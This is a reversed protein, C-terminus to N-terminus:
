SECQFYSRPSKGMVKKFVRSFHEVNNYGCKFALEYLKYNYSSMLEISAAIRTRNLFETFVMGEEKSFVTSMYSANVGMAESLSSLTLDTEYNTLIYKKARKVLTMNNFENQICLSVIEKLWQNYENYTGYKNLYVTYYSLKDFILPNIGTTELYEELYIHYKSFCDRVLALPENATILFQTINDQLGEIKRSQLCSRFLRQKDTYESTDNFSSCVLDYALLEEKGLYFFRELALSAQKYMESLTRKGKSKISNMGGIINMCMYVNMNQKITHFINRISSVANIHPAKNMVIIYEGYSRKFFLTQEYELLIEELVNCVAFDWLHAQKEWVSHLLREYDDIRLLMLLIPDTPITFGIKECQNILTKWDTGQDIANNLLIGQMAQRTSQIFQELNGLKQILASVTLQQNRKQELEDLRKEIRERCRSLIDSVQEITIESKLAYDVTGLKFAKEVMHFDNYASLVVFQLNVHEIMANAIFEFGDMVPMKIDTFVVDIQETKLVGLAQLGNHATAKIVAGASEWDLLDRLMDLMFPEDDVLLINIM